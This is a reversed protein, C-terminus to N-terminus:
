DDADYTTDQLREELKQQIFAVKDAKVFVRQSDLQKILVKSAAHCRDNLDIIFVITAEDSTILVGATTVVM